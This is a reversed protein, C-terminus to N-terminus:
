EKWVTPIGSSTFIPLSTSANSGIWIRAAKSAPRARAICGSGHCLAGGLEPSIGEQAKSARIACYSDSPRWLGPSVRHRLVFSTLSFEVVPLRMPRLAHVPERFVQATIRAIRPRRSLMPDCNKNAGPGSPTWTRGHPFGPPLDTEPLLAFMQVARQVSLPRGIRSPLLLKSCAGRQRRLAGITSSRDRMSPM